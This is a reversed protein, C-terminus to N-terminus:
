SRRFRCSRSSGTACSSPVVAPAEVVPAQGGRAAAVPAAEPRGGALAAELQEIRTLLARTSADVAPSASKVLALELQTRPDAGAKIAELAAALLDLLRVM